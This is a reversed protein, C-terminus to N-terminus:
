GFFIRIFETWQGEAMARTMMLSPLVHNTEDGDFPHDQYRYVLRALALGATGALLLTLWLSLRRFAAPGPGAGKRSDDLERGASATSEASNM